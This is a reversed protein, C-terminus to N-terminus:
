PRDSGQTIWPSQNHNGLAIEVHGVRVAVVDQNVARAMSLDRGLGSAAIDAVPAPDAEIRRAIQPHCIVPGVIAAARAAYSFVGVPHLVRVVIM